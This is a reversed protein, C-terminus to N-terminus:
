FKVSSRLAIDWFEFKEDTIDEKGKKEELLRSFEKKTAEDMKDFENLASYPDSSEDLELLSNIQLQQLDIKEQQNRAEEEKKETEKEPSPASLAIDWLDFLEDTIEGRNRKEELRKMIRRKTVANVMKVMEAILEPSAESFILKDIDFAPRKISEASIATLSMLPGNRQIFADVALGIRVIMEADGPRQLPGDLVFKLSRQEKRWKNLREEDIRFMNAVESVAVSPLDQRAMSLRDAVRRKDDSKDVFFNKMWIRVDETMTYGLSAMARIPVQRDLPLPTEALLGALAAIVDAESNSDGTDAKVGVRAMMRPFESSILSVNISLIQNIIDIRHEPIIPINRLSRGRVSLEIAEKVQM